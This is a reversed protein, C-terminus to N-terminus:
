HNIKFREFVYQYSDPLFLAPNPTSQTQFLLKHDKTLFMSPVSQISGVVSVMIWHLINAIMKKGMAIPKRM